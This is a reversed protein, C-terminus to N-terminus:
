DGPNTHIKLSRPMVHVVPVVLFFSPYFGFLFYLYKKWQILREQKNCQSILVKPLLMFSHWIFISLSCM